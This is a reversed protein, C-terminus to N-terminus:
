APVLPKLLSRKKKGFIRDIEEQAFGLAELTNRQFYRLIHNMERGWSIVRSYVLKEWFRGKRIGKCVGMVRMAIQGPFVRLFRRLAKETPALILLHLHNGVNVFNKIVVGSLHAQEYVIQSVM